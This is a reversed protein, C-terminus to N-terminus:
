EKAVPLVTDIVHIVGNSCLVNGSVIKAGGVRLGDKAGSVSLDGGQLTRLEKGSLEKLGEVTVKGPVVHARVFRKVAAKDTALSKITAEDLKKFAADTPAFLTYQEQGKLNAVEDAEKIAVTLVTHDKMLALTDYISGVDSAPAPVGGLAVAGVLAVTTFLKARM